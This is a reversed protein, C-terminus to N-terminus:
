EGMPNLRRMLEDQKRQASSDRWAKTPSQENAFRFYGPLQSQSGGTVEKLNGGLYNETANAGATGSSHTSRIKALTKYTNGKKNTVEVVVEDGARHEGNDKYSYLKGSGDHGYNVNVIRSSQTTMQGKNQKNEAPEGLNNLKELM